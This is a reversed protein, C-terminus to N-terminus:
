LLESFFENTFFPSNTILGVISGSLKTLLPQKDSIPYVLSM